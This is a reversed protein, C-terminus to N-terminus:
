YEFLRYQYDEFMLLQVFENELYTPTFPKDIGPNTLRSHDTLRAKMGPGEIIDGSFSGNNSECDEIMRSVLIAHGYGEYAKQTPFTGTM